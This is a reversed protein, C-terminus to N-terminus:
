KKKKNYEQITAVVLVIVMILLLTHSLFPAGSYGMTAIVGYGDFM